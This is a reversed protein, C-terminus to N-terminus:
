GEIKFFIDGVNATEPLNTGYMVNTVNIKSTSILQPKNVTLTNTPNLTDFDFQIGNIKKTTDDIIVTNDTLKLTKAENAVGANILSGAQKDTTKPNAYLYGDTKLYLERSQLSAPTSEGGNIRILTILKGDDM